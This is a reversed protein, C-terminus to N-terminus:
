GEFFFVLFYWCVVENFNCRRDCFLIIVGFGINEDVIVVFDDGVWFVFLGFYGIFNGLIFVDYFENRFCCM